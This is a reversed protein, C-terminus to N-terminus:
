GIIGGVPKEHADLPPLEILSREHKNVKQYIPILLLLSIGSILWSAQISYKRAVLGLVVLGIAAGLKGMMSDFSLVTARQESPIHKNLFSKHIPTRMGRGIEYVLFSSLVVAFFSSIAALIIPIALVIVNIILIWYYSKQQKLFVKIMYNGFIMALSILVWIWGLVWVKDGALENMRPSWYMNLSMFAFSSVISSVILWLVVKHKVGFRISDSAIEVMKGFGNTLSIRVKSIIPKEYVFMFAVISGLIAVLVGIGFPLNLAVIGIYGGALGGILSAANGIIESHSFIIDVSETDGRDRLSDVLWADLAGSAFTASLAALFEALIFVIFSSSIFYVVLCAVTLLSSLLISKRRGIYDAFAGTPIEFVFISLMFVMNVINVQFLDLGKSLLFLVYTTATLGMALDALFTLIYYVEKVEKSKLKNFISFM